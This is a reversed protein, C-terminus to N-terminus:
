DIKRQAKEYKHEIHKLPDAIRFKDGVLELRVARLTQGCRRCKFKNGDYVDDIGYSHRGGCDVSKYSESLDM